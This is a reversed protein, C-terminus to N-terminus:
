RQLGVHEAMPHPFLFRESELLSDPQEAEDWGIVPTELPTPQQAFAVEGVNYNEIRVPDIRLQRLQSVIQRRARPPEFLLRVSQQCRDDVTLVDQPLVLM